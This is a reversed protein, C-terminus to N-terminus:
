WMMDDVLFVLYVDVDIVVVDVLDGDVKQVELIAVAVTVDALIRDIYQVDLVGAAAVVSDNKYAGLIGCFIRFWLLLLLVM